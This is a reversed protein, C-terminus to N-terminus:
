LRRPRYTRTTFGSPGALNNNAVPVVPRYGTLGGVNRRMIPRYTNASYGYPRGMNLPQAYSQVPGRIINPAVNVPTVTAIPPRSVPIQQVPLRSAVPVQSVVGVPRVPVQTMVPVPSAVPLRSAVPVQPVVPM